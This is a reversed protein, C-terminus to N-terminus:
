RPGASRDDEGTSTGPAARAVKCGPLAARLAQIGKSTVGTQGISLEALRTLKALAVVVADTVRTHFLNLERLRSLGALRAVGADGVQTFQLSLVDLNTLGAVHRMGEDTVAEASDLRLEELQVLGALHALGRDTIGPGLRLSVLSRNDALHALGKDTVGGVDCEEFLDLFAITKLRRVEQLARNKLHHFGWGPTGMEFEYGAQELKEIVPREEPLPEMAGAM